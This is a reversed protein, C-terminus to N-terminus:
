SFSKSRLHHVGSQSNQVIVKQGNNLLKLEGINPGSAIIDEIDENDLFGEDAEEMQAILGHPGGHNQTDYEYEFEEDGIDEM